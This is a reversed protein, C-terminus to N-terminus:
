RSVHRARSSGANATARSAAHAPDGPWERHQATEDRAAAWLRSRRRRWPEDKGELQAHIDARGHHDTLHWAPLPPDDGDEAAREFARADLALDNGPPASQCIM